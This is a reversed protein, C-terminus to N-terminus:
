ASPCASQLKEVLKVMCDPELYVDDTAAREQAMLGDLGPWEKSTYPPMRKTAGLVLVNGAGVGLDREYLRACGNTSMAAPCGQLHTVAVVLEKRMGHLEDRLERLFDKINLFEDSDPPYFRMVFLVAHWANQPNSKESGPDCCEPCSSWWRGMWSSPEMRWQM